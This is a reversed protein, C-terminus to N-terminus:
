LEYLIEAYAEAITPFGNHNNKCISINCISKENKLYYFTTLIKVKYQSM